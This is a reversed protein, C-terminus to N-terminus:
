VNQKGETRLKPVRIRIMTGKGVKSEIQFQFTEYTINLREYINKIGIGHGKPKVTFKRVGELEEETMGPGNDKVEFLINNEEETITIKIHCVDEMQDAGYFIANEVLPQLTMRPMIYKGLNGNKEVAFDARDEYRYRQIKLYNELMSIEEEVAIYPNEDFSARLLAGLEVIMRSAKENEKARIMWHIVNLTNYLFHPNIQAQLMKYKTDKLLFQKEYNEKVLVDIQDLMVRFEKTLLGVEDEREADMPIQKASEFDGTEVVQMSRVLTELPRTIIESIRHILFLLLVFVVCFSCLALNRVREIQGYVDSYPFFNVYMWGNESTSLYCMFYREGHYNLVKYGQGDKNQPLPPLSEEIDQYIMHDDTYVFMSAHEAELLKKDREIIQGVDCVLMLTGMNELSMDQWNLMKRGCLLYKCKKTPGYFVAEGSSDRIKQMFVDKEEEPIEWAAQGSEVTNGYNDIYYITQIDSKLNKDNVLSWRISTLLQNYELTEPKTQQLKGLISQLESDLLMEYSRDSVRQLSDKVDKAYYDLERISNDYLKKEFVDTSGQFALISVGFFFGAFVAYVLLMKRTLTINKFRTRWWKNIKQMSGGENGSM